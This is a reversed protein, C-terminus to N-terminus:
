GKFFRWRVRGTAADLAYIQHDVSSGFFVTEGVAVTYFADDFKMKPMEANPQPDPWAYKPPAPSCCVWHESLPLRLSEGTVGSRANDHMYTPWDEAM